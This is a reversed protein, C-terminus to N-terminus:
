KGGITSQHITINNAFDGDRGQNRL